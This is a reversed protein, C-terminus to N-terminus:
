LIRLQTACAEPFKQKLDEKKGMIFMCKQANVAECEIEIIDIDEKFACSAAGAIFGRTFHDCPDKVKGKLYSAIPSDQITVVGGRKEENLEEWVIKGWGAVMALDVFWKSYDKFSFGYTKGISLGFGERLSDKVSIYLKLIAQSDDRIDFVYRALVDSPLIQMRQGLMRINGDEFTLQRILTLENFIGM